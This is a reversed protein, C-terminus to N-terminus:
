LQLLASSGGGQVWLCLLLQSQSLSRSGRGRCCRVKSKAALLYEKEVRMTKIKRVLLTELARLDALFSTFQEDKEKM